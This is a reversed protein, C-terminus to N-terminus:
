RFFSTDRLVYVKIKGGTAFGYVPHMENYESCDIYSLLYVLSGISPKQLHIPVEILNPNNKLVRAISESPTEPKQACYDIFQVSPWPGSSLHVEQILLSQNILKMSLGGDVRSMDSYGIIRGYAFSVSDNLQLNIKQNPIRIFLFIVVIVILIVLSRNRKLFQVFNNQM